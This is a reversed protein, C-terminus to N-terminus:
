NSKPGLRSDDSSICESLMLQVDFTIEADSRQRPSSRLEADIKETILTFIGQVARVERLLVDRPVAPEDHPWVAVECEVRLMDLIESPLNRTVYINPKM